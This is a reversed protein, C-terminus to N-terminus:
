VQPSQQPWGRDIFGQVIEQLEGLRGHFFHGANDVTAIEPPPEYHRLVTMSEDYPVVEDDRSHVVLWPCHPRQPPPEDRFYKGFPPAVSVLLAPQARVSARLSVFGGFSFGALLLPLQPVRARMWDIVALTDETEGLGHDHVGASKGVGRFNFRLAYFDRQLATAALAYTVKNSMAGGYLPHPHCIVAFGKPTERPAALLAEIPGAAGPILITNAKGAGPLHQM